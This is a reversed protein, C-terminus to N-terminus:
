AYMLYLPKTTNSSYTSTTYDKFTGDWGTLVKSTARYYTGSIVRGGNGDHVAESWASLNCGVDMGNGGIVIWVGGYQQGAPMTFANAGIFDIQKTGTTTPDVTGLDKLLTGVTLYPTGSTSTTTGDCSYIGVKITGTTTSSNNVDFIISSLKSGEALPIYGLVAQTNSCAEGQVKTYNTLGVTASNHSTGGLFVGKFPPLESISQAPLTGGGGGGTASVIPNAPDTNDVTVNTGAVVSQVGSVIPNGTWNGADDIVEGYTTTKFGSAKIPKSTMVINSEDATAFSDLLIVDTVNFPITSGHGIIFNRGSLGTGDTDIVNGSGLIGSNATNTYSEFGVVSSGDAANGYKGLFVSGEGAASDFGLAITNISGTFVSNDTPSLNITQNGTSVGRTKIIQNPVDMQFLGGTVAAASLDIIGDFVARDQSLSITTDNGSGDQLKKAVTPDLASEDNTKILGPYTNNIQKGQLTAM